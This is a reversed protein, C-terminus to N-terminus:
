YRQKNIINFHVNKEVGRGEGWGKVREWLVWAELKSLLDQRKRSEHLNFGHIDRKPDM